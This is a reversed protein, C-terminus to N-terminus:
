DGDAGQTNEDRLLQREYANPLGTTGLPRILTLPGPRERDDSM